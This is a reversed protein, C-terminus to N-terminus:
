PAHPLIEAQWVGRVANFCLLTGRACERFPIAGIQIRLGRAAAWGPLDLAEALSSVRGEPPPLRLSGESMLAVAAITTEALTGDPWLCLLDAAGAARAGALARASWPGLLGKHPARLDGRPDGLPHPSPLLRYPAPLATLPELRARLLSQGPDVRVRLLGDGGLRLSADFAAMLWPADHGLAACGERLRRLHAAGHVARGAEM